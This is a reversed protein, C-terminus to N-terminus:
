KGGTRSGNEDVLINLKEEREPADAYWVMYEGRSSDHSPVTAEKEEKTAERQRQSFSPFHFAM